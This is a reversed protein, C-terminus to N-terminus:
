LNNFVHHIHGGILQRSPPRALERRLRTNPLLGRYDDSDSYAAPGSVDTRPPPRPLLLLIERPRLPAM